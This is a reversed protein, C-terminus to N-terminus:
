RACRSPTSRNRAARQLPLALRTVDATAAARQRQTAACRLLRGGAAAPRVAHPELRREQTADDEAGWREVRAGALNGAAGEQPHRSYPVFKDDLFAYKIHLAAQESELWRRLDPAARRM